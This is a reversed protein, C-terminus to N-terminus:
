SSLVGSASSAVSHTASEAGDILLSAGCTKCFATLTMSDGVVRVHAQPKHTACPAPKPKEKKEAPILMPPDDASTREPCAACSALKTHRRTLTCEGKVDCAFIEIPQGRGGCLDCKGVRLLAGRHDCSFAPALM